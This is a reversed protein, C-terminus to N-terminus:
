LLLIYLPLYCHKMTCHEARETSSNSCDIVVPLRYYLNDQAAQKIIIRQDQLLLMCDVLSDDFNLFEQKCHVSLLLFGM